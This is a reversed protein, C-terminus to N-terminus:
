VVAAEEIVLAPRRSAVVRALVGFPLTVAAGDTHGSPLGFLIPGRFDRLVERVVDRARPDGGLEDCRPLENFVIAAARELLGALRLQTLMRDLRYPREAIDDLFLVCGAPPNFAYPTGLSAVLQTLTGGVLEGAAEGAALTELQEPAIEGAPDVSFLCRQFSALDYGAPGRALRGEVMPGHFTVIGCDQMLWTMLSTNDSYGIFAKANKLFAERNLFPLLQVSGYGGRAAVVAAIAPDTWADIFERAREDAPGALYGTRAFVRDSYVPDLGLSRLEAVGRDFDDRAFPSAPAIIAIRDGRQLAKPKRM